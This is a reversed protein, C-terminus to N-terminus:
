PKKYFICIAYALLTRVVLERGDEVNCTSFEYM